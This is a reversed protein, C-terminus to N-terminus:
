LSPIKVVGFYHDFHIQNWGIIEGPPGQKFLSKPANSMWLRLRLIFLRIYEFDVDDSLIPTPAAAHYILSKYYTHVDVLRWVRETLVLVPSQKLLYYPVRIAFPLPNAFQIRKERSL